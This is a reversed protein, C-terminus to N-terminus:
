VLCHCNFYKIITYRERLNCSIDDEVGKQRIVYDIVVTPFSHSLFFPLFCNLLTLSCSRSLTLLTIQSGSRMEVIAFFLTSMNTFMMEIKM